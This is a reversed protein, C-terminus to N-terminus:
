MVAQVLCLNVVAHFDAFTLSCNTPIPNLNHRLVCGMESQSKHCDDPCLFFARQSLFVM